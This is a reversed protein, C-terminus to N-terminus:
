VPRSREEAAWELLWLRTFLTWVFAGGFLVGTLIRLFPTSERPTFPGFMALAYSVFQSGGDLAIPMLGFVLFAWIPMPHWPRRRLLMLTASFVMASYIALDRQCIAIKWGIRSDGIFTRPWPYGPLRELGVRERLDELKYTLHEGFLFFSRQPLQHCLFSYITYLVSAPESLGAKMLVPPMLAGIVYIWLGLTLLRISYPIERRETKVGM